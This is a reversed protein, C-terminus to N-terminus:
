RVRRVLAPVLWVAVLLFAVGVPWSLLLHPVFVGLAVYAAGAAVYLVLERM